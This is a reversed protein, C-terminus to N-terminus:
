GPRSLRLSRRPPTPHSWGARRSSRRACRSRCGSGPSGRCGRGCGRRRGARWVVPRSRRGSQSGSIVADFATARSNMPTATSSRPRRLDRRSHSARWPLPRNADGTPEIPPPGPNPLDLALQASKAAPDGGVGSRRSRQGLLTFERWGYGPATRDMFLPTSFRSAPLDRLSILAARRRDRSKPLTVAQRFGRM